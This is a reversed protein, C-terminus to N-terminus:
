IIIENNDETQYASIAERLLNNLTMAEEFVESKKVNHKDALEQFENYIENMNVMNLAKAIFLAVVDNKLSM